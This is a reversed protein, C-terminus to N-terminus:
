EDLAVEVRRNLRGGEATENTAVPRTEGLGVARLSERSLGHNEILFRVVANARRESLALNYEGSGKSDTHGEIRFKM